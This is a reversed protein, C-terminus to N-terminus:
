IRALIATASLWHEIGSQLSGGQTVHQWSQLAGEGECPRFLSNKIMNVPLLLETYYYM